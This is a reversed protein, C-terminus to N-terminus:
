DVFICIFIFMSLSFGVLIHEIQVSLYSVDKKQLIFFFMKWCFRQRQLHRKEDLHLFQKHATVFIEAGRDTKKKKKQQFIGPDDFDSATFHSFHFLELNIDTLRLQFSHCSLTKLKM